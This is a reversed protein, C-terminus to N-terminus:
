PYLTEVIRRPSIPLDTFRHGLAHSVANAVAALPPVIPAEGVGRVGFPHPPHPEEILITEIMPLDLATPMRYDLLSANALRGHEDYYYEENLAWGIGQAVGGQIQGEVYSPHIAKGVDQAATYRLIEVKGTEVDVALDVLHCAFAFGVHKPSVSARGVVPGGTKFIQGALQDFTLHQGERPGRITGDEYVIEDEPTLQWLLRAREVLQRKIDQGLEYVAIGGTFTTRSGGTADNYGVTDTDAVQPIVKEYPISLTEALQMALSARTGGIDPNGEVLTVSGDPNVTAFCSSKLPANPWFGMALGRGVKRTETAPPLPCNWHESDRIAELLKINGVPHQFPIGNAMRTGVKAANKLRLEIPDMDLAEALEDLASEGAFMAAPSGPARYAAVKPKNVVVDYSDLQINPIDYPAFMCLAGFRVSSGPFAGAEYALSAEAAVITGDRKAGIKVRTLSGSTPGSALLEEARSMTMKVPAGSKRSLVAALPELYPPLKGGFGGGIETPIVRIRAVPVGLLEAVNDRIAFPAQTTTWITIKGDSNWHAVTAHPEIYGQHVMTTTYTREVIVEAEAFGAAPDGKLFRAHSAVNSAQDSLTGLENTRQDEHLLPADDRMAEALSMVPTLPEYDVKILALAQEAVASSEAAVAAVAHGHYLVKERALVNRSLDRFSASAEGVDAMGKQPDPLDAATMVARVGPLREAASTDIGRLRAHAYPSRLVKGVLMGPLSVDAGYVARGTVKDVGDPRVPRTGIVTYTTGSSRTTTVM